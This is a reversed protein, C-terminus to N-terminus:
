AETAAIFETETTSLVVCKQLRSQWAVVGSAFKVLYGLTSKQTDVDGSMDINAYSVLLPKEGEFTLHLRSTGHLYRLIWKVVNWYDRGSNSFFHSVTGVAHSIDPRTCVMVYILSGMVSVYPVQEMYNKELDTTPSHQNSLRFHTALPSTVVKSKDM